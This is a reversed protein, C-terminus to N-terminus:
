SVFLKFVAAANVADCLEKGSHTFVVIGIAPLIFLKHASAFKGELKAIIIYGYSDRRIVEDCGCTYQGIFFSTSVGWCIVLSFLALFSNLWGTVM